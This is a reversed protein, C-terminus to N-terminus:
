SDGARVKGLHSVAILQLGDGTNMAFMFMAVSSEVTIFGDGESSTFVTVLLLGCWPPFDVLCTVAKAIVHAAVAISFSVCPAERERHTHTERETERQRERDKETETDRV